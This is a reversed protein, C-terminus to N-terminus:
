YLYMTNKISHKYNRKIKLYEKFSMINILNKPVIAAHALHILHNLNRKKDIKLKRYLNAKTAKTMMIKMNIQMLIKLCKKFKVWQYKVKITLTQVAKMMM